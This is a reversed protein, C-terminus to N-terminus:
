CQCLQGWNHSALTKQPTFIIGYCWPQPQYRGWIVEYMWLLCICLTQDMPISDWPFMSAGKYQSLSWTPVMLNPFDPDCSSQFHYWLMMNSASVWRLGSWIDMTSMYFTNSDNTHQGTELSCPHVWVESWKMYGYCVPIFHKLWQYATELFYPPVRICHCRGLQSWGIQSTLTVQPTFIIGYCWTQPQYGVHGSWEDMNSM